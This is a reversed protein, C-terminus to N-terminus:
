LSFLLFVYTIFIVLADRVMLGIDKPKDPQFQVFMQLLPPLACKPLDM